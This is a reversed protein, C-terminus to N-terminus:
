KKKKEVKKQLEEYKKMFQRQLNATEKEENPNDRSRLIKMTFLYVFAELLKIRADKTIIGLREAEAFIKDHALEDYGIHAISLHFESFDHDMTFLADAFQEGKAEKLVDSFWFLREEYIPRYQELQKGKKFRPFGDISLDKKKEKQKVQVYRPEFIQHIIDKIRDIAIVKETESMDQPQVFLKTHAQFLQDGIKDFKYYTCTHMMKNAIEAIIKVEKDSYPHNTDAHRKEINEVQKWVKKALKKLETIYHDQEIFSVVQNVSEPDKKSFVADFGVDEPKM